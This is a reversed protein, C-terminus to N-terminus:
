YVKEGGVFTELVQIKFLESEMETLLDKDLIVFDAFKGIEISGKENEEFCSKAAWITMAKLAQERTLANELQFGSEPYGKQDKRTVGAYFGYLPNINEIPFDSGNPLWGNQKLLQQYAYAGKIREAGLREEAWYMDSTAHTTQISPIISYKGYKDFDDSNVIQSHEIRWRLDNKDKLVKSYIDLMLRVASDGICHTCVQFGADFAAQCEALLEDYPKVQVGTKTSDDSYPKLLLAGRSGLAGDAYLKVTRLNLYDTKYKGEKLKDINKLAYPLMTYIRM